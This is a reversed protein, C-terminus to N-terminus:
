RHSVRAPAIIWGTPSCRAPALNWAARMSIRPTPGRRRVLMFQGKRIRHVLEIGAIAWAANVFTKFGLMPGTRAKIARHDQEVISAVVFVAAILGVM